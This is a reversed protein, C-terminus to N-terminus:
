HRGETDFAGRYEPLEDDHDCGILGCRTCPWDDSLSDINLSRAVSGARRLWASNDTDMALDDIVSALRSPGFDPTDLRSLRTM